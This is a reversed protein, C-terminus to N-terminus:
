YYIRKGTNPDKRWHQGRTSKNGKNAESIKRKHDESLKKGKHANSIKARYEASLKKGKWCSEKGKNRTSIKAKTEESIHKGKWYGKQGKHHLSCHQAKTLFILEKAPRNFYLGLEILEIASFGLDERRHHCDYTENSIIAEEYNEILSIDESCFKKVTRFSIM